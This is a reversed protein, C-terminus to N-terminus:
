KYTDAAKKIFPEFLFYIDELSEDIMMPLAKAYMDLLIIANVTSDTKSAARLREAVATNIIGVNEYIKRLGNLKLDPVYGKKNLFYQALLYMSTARYVTEKGSAM